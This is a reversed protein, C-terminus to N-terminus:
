QIIAEDKFSNDRPTTSAGLSNQGDHVHTTSSGSRLRPTFSQKRSAWLLSTSGLNPRISTPSATDPTDSPPKPQAVAASLVEWPSEGSNPTRPARSLSRKRSVSRTLPDLTENMDGMSISNGRGILAHLVITNSSPTSPWSTKALNGLSAAQPDPARVRASEGVAFTSDGIASNSKSTGFSNMSLQSGQALNQASAKTRIDKNVEGLVHVNKYTFEGFLHTDLSSTSMGRTLKGGAFKDMDRARFRSLSLSDEYNDNEETFIDDQNPAKETPKVEGNNSIYEDGDCYYAQISGKRQHVGENFSSDKQIDRGVKSERSKQISEEKRSLNEEFAGHGETSLRSHVSPEMSDQGDLGIEEHLSSGKAEFRARRKSPTRKVEPGLASVSITSLRQIDPRTNRAEFYSTDTNDSPAPLFPASQERLNDWDIGDFFEHKKIGDARLRTVPDPNLLRNICDKAADPISDDEPWTIDHNLINKFILEATEDAFPPIGVLMEYMCVGLAWWDVVPGHDLGLLLEPALYDPTGLLAKSSHRFNSGYHSKRRQLTTRRREIDNFETGAAAGPVPKGRISTATKANRSLTNLQTLVMEPNRITEQEPVSIRSLGFDTLKVHGKDPKLDRHTIGNSHLYELALVVEAIYMRTMEVDFTGFAQLLTSLDGGILYEMVLYLYEKSQFAYYLKVVFPNRSITLVKHEARVHAIMNKRIMDEKKLIKIAYLDQTTKKKALYVKGFAGRSIPKIIEFDHISPIKTKRDKDPVNGTNVESPPTGIQASTVRRNHGGRLLAAFLSIFKNGKESATSNPSLMSAANSAQSMPSLNNELGGPSLMGELASEKTRAPSNTDPSGLLSSLPGLATSSQLQAKSSTGSNISSTSSIAFGANTPNKSSRAPKKVSGTLLDLNQSAIIAEKSVNSPFGSISEPRGNSKELSQIRENFTKLNKLKEDILRSTKKILGSVESYAARSGLFEANSYKHLKGSVKELVLVAKKGTDDGVELAMRTRTCTSDIIKALQSQDAWDDYTNSKTVSPKKADLSKLCKRLMQEVNYQRIQHEQTISCSSVHREIESAAIHEECIRCLITEPASTEVPTQPPPQLSKRADRNSNGFVRSTRTSNAVSMRDTSGQYVSLRESPVTELNQAGVASSGMSTTTSLSVMSNARITKDLRTKAMPASASPEESKQGEEGSPYPIASMSHSVGQSSGQDGAKKKTPKPSQPKEAEKGDNVKSKDKGQWWSARPSRNRSGPASFSSASSSRSLQELSKTAGKVRTVRQSPNRSPTASTDTLKSSLSEAFAMESEIRQVSHPAKAQSMEVSDLTASSAVARSHDSFIISSSAKALSPKRAAITPSNQTSSRTLSTSTVNRHPQLSARRLVGQANSQRRSPDRKVDDLVGDASRFKGDTQTQNLDDLKTPAIVLPSIVRSAQRPRRVAVGGATGLQPSGAVALTSRRQMSSPQSSPSSLDSNSERDMESMQPYSPSSSISGQRGPIEGIVGSRKRAIDVFPSNSSSNETTRGDDDTSVSVPSNRSLSDSKIPSPADLKRADKAFQTRANRYKIAANEVMESDRIHHNLSDAVRSVPAFVFLMQTLLDISSTNAVVTRRQAEMLEQMAKMFESARTSGIFDEAPTRIIMIATAEIHSFLMEQTSISLSPPWSNSHLLVHRHKKAKEKKIEKGCPNNALLLGEAIPIDDTTAEEAKLDEILCNEQSQQNAAIADRLRKWKADGSGNQSPHADSSIDGMTAHKRVPSSTLASHPGDDVKQRADYRLESRDQDEGLAGEDGESDRSRLIMLLGMDAAEKARFLEEIMMNRVDLTAAKEAEALDLFSVHNEDSEEFVDDFISIADEAAKRDMVDTSHTPYAGVSFAKVHGNSFPRKFTSSAKSAAVSSAVKEKAKGGALGVSGGSDYGSNTEETDSSYSFSRSPQEPNSAAQSPSSLHAAFLADFPNKASTGSTSLPPTYSGNSSIRSSLASLLHPSVRPSRSGTNPSRPPTLYYSYLALHAPLNSPPISSPSEGSLAAVQASNPSDGVEVQDASQYSRSSVDSIAGPSIGPNIDANPQGRLAAGTVSSRINNPSFSRALGAPMGQFQLNSVSKRYENGQSAVSKRLDTGPIAPSSGFSSALQHISNLSSDSLPSLSSVSGNASGEEGAKLNVASGSGGAKLNVASGSYHTQSERKSGSRSRTKREQSSLTRRLKRGDHQFAPSTQIASNVSGSPSARNIYSSPLNESSDRKSIGSEAFSGSGETETAGLNTASNGRSTAVMRGFQVSSQSRLTPHPSTLSGRHGQQNLFRSPGTKTAAVGFDKADNTLVYNGGMMNSTSTLSPQSTVVFQQELSMGRSSMRKASGVTGVDGKSILGVTDGSAVDSTSASPTVNSPDQYLSTNLITTAAPQISTKATDDVSRLMGWRKEGSKNTNQERRQIQGTDEAMLSEQSSM